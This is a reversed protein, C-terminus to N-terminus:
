ASAVRNRGQAKAAYMLTDVENLIQPADLDTPLHLTLVGFSASVLQLPPNGENRIHLGVIAARINESLERAAEASTNPLIIVFEEGGYRAVLDAHPQVSQLLLSAVRRLCEDGHVHGYLDNYAKFHDIDLLILSLPRNNLNSEELVAKLSKDLERRNLLGTLGDVAALLALENNKEELEKQQKAIFQKQLFDRTTNRWIVLALFMGMVVATLGNVRNSLLIAQDPQYLGITFYYVVYTGLFLPVSAMPRITFLMAIFICIVLLPTIATTVLQDLSVLAIGVAIVSVVALAILAHIYMRPLKIKRIRVFTTIIFILVQISLLISHTTLIGLRWFAESDSDAVTFYTFLVVHSAALLMGFISMLHMRRLNMQDIEPLISVIKKQHDVLNSIAQKLSQKRHRKEM